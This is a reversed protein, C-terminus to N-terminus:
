KGAVSHANPVERPDSGAGCAPCYQHDLAASSAKRGPCDRRSGDTPMARVSEPSAFSPFRLRGYKSLSGDIHVYSRLMNPNINHKECFRIRGAGSKENRPLARYESVHYETIARYNRGESRAIAACGPALLEGAVSIRSILTNFSINFARAFRRMASSNRQDRPQGKWMNLHWAQVRAYRRETRVNSCVQPPPVDQTAAPTAETVTSDPVAVATPSPRQVESPVAFTPWLLQWIVPPLWPFGHVPGLDPSAEWPASLPAQSPMASPLMWEAVNQAGLFGRGVSGTSEHSSSLPTTPVGLHSTAASRGTPLPYM